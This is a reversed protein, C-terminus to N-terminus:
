EKESGESLLVAGYQRLMETMPDSDVGEALTIELRFNKSIIFADSSSSYAIIKASVAVSYDRLAFLYKEIERVTPNKSIGGFETNELFPFAYKLTKRTAEKAAGTDIM